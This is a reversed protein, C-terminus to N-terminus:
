VPLGTALMRHVQRLDTVLRPQDVVELIRALTGGRFAELRQAEDGVMFVYCPFLPVISRLVRGGPTRGERRAQPLYYSLRRSLLHRATAKEQRPKTHLCWWRADGSQAFDDDWLGEPFLDPEAPLIPVSTGKAISNLRRPPTQPRELEFKNLRDVPSAVHHWRDHRLDM